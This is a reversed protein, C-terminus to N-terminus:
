ASINIQGSIILFNLILIKLFKYNHQFFPYFAGVTGTALDLYSFGWYPAYADLMIEIALQLSTGGVIAGYLLSKKKNM